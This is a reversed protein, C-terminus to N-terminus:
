DYKSKRKTPIVKLTIHKEIGKVRNELNELLRMRRELELIRSYRQKPELSVYHVEPIIEKEPEKSYPQSAELFALRNEYEALVDGIEPYQKILERLEPM